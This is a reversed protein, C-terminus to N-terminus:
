AARSFGESSVEETIVEFRTLVANGFQTSIAVDAADRGRAIVIRGIRPVNHRADFTFWQGDLFVEFWASFDMPAPDKPVGIDGLYGTCYRAPINMCRCLTVALHAFDRCVGVREEHGESATRDGRAHHYGFQLREHVYDCIAQVRQWGGSIHGFLSWALNTLRQTDCYRSGYLFPLVDDPLENVDWQQANPAVPDPLGCDEILFDNRIEIRGPPAVLRTWINGFPDLGDRTLVRPSVEMKHESRLDNQRSPHVSLLVVLPVEQYCDFAIHYGARIILLREQYRSCFPGRYDQKGPNTGATAHAFLLWIWGEESLASEYKFGRLQTTALLTSLQL